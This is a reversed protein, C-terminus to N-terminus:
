AKPPPFLRAANDHLLARAVTLAQDETMEKSEVRNALVHAINERAIRSHAYTLEVHRYDGGFGLIKNSPVADLTEDLARRATAPSLIHTWCFDVTVNPFIKALAAVEETWPYGNHFLDFAVRPYLLFLNNLLTPRTNPLYSANGALTGTHVQLPVRHEQCLQVVRHFMWDELRRLPRHTFRRPGKLPTAENRMLSEFDREAAARPVEHFLLERSYAMTTKATVMGADLSQKFRKELAAELGKLNPISIQTVEEMRRIAAPSDPTCYWDFKRALRFYNPDPRIPDGHFYDDLVAFRLKMRRKLIDDYLGLRNRSAIAAGIKPITAASIDDFGYIDRVAIRLARGYGTHLVHPWAALFAAPDKARAPDMGASVLDNVTYHDALTFFDPTAALREQESFLHEHTSALDLADVATSLRKLLAPAAGVAALFSRRQVPSLTGRLFTLNADTFEQATGFESSAM